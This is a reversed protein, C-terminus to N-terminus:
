PRLAARAKRTLAVFAERADAARIERGFSFHLVGGPAETRVLFGTRDVDVIRADKPRVDRFAACMALLADEHDANMHEIIGAAAAGLGEGRPDRRIADAEVWCIRGFGAIVRVRVVDMEWFAFDHTEFYAPADPVREAYRAHLAEDAAIEHMRGLLTVRWGAQPDGGDAPQPEQVLLSARPDRRLNRTHQAISATLIFPEGEPTLAFPVVSGFPFGETEPDASLTALAGSTTTLLWRRADAAPDEAAEADEAEVEEESM